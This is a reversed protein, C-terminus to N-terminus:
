FISFYDILYKRTMYKDTYIVITLIYTPTSICQIYSNIIPIIVDM